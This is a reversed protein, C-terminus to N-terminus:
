GADVLAIDLPVIDRVIEDVGSELFYNFSDVHPAVYHEM